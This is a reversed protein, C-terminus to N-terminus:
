SDHTVYNLLLFHIITTSPNLDQMSALTEFQSQACLLSMAYHSQEKPYTWVEVLFQGKSSRSSKM